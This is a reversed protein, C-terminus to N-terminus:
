SAGGTRTTSASVPSGADKVLWTGAGLLAAIVAVIITARLLTRAAFVLVVIGVMVVFSLMTAAGVAESRTLPLTLSLFVTSLAAIGYGGATAIVVRGAVAARDRLRLSAM